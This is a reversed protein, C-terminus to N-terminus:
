SALDVKSKMKHKKLYILLLSLAAPTVGQIRSAMGLSIPRIQELKATAENSLGHIAQYNFDAPIVTAENRKLRDVDDKQRDIYGAYKIDIEIQEGVTPDIDPLEAAQHLKQYDLEPRKLIDLLNSSKTLPQTLLTELKQGIDNNLTVKTQRMLHKRQEIAECKENFARWREEGVLGLKYGIETLRQDANDERLLLRYEARSTFMRYPEQTGNTVLDDVMVGLYAQDRRATWPEKDLAKLAANTGALLGQAGAEEYGTTGNIQGAFYLGSILKTELTPFLDQPNFFDYEIAYGPRVIHANEFGVISQVFSLQVDFPLSTSIGNPYLEISQLGEPEVFIQHSDKDAFRMIKDEISPCYRPGVGEIVGAYLPSRDLSDRIMNHTNVNTHTIHCPVQRPHDALKGLMSMVPTPNDGPQEQM